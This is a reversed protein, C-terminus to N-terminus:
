RKPGPEDAGPQCFLYHVDPEFCFTCLRPVQIPHRHKTLLDSVKAQGVLVDLPNHTAQM